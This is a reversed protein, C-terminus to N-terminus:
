ICSQVYEKGAGSFSFTSQSFGYFHQSSKLNMIVFRLPVKTRGPLGRQKRPLNVRDSLEKEDAGREELRKLRKDKRM